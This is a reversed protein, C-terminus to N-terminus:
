IFHNKKRRRGKCFPCPIKNRKYLSVRIYVPMHYNHNSDNLCNWWVEYNSNEGITKPDCIAYNNIVDWEKMLDPYKLAISDEPLVSNGSCYPCGSGSITRHLIKAQYEHGRPCLWFVKKANAKTIESPKLDGNLSPHWEKAIEPFCTELDNFGKLLRKGSCYPCGSKKRVRDVIRAPYSHGNPCLWFAKKKTGYTVNSPSTSGNLDPHWERAIEPAVTSLDNFGELVMKGSCYPCGTKSSIRNYVRAPYSHGNPCLWFVKKDTAKTIESPKLDGNLSPHWEKAIDPFCTELDNFGKLPKKGSCYPCGTKLCVRDAIRAPYFHGNPCLWFAKANSGYSVEAPSISGNLDPHWEAAVEPAVVALSKEKPISRSAKEKIIKRLDVM